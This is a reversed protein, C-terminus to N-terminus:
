RRPWRHARGRLLRGAGGDWLEIRGSVASSRPPLPMNVDAESGEAPSVDGDVRITEKARVLRVPPYDAGVEPRVVHGRLQTLLVAEVREYFRVRVIRACAHDTRHGAGEATAIAGGKDFRSASGETQKTVTM